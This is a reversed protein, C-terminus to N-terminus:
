FAETMRSGIKSPRLIGVPVSQFFKLNLQQPASLVGCRVTVSCNATEGGHQSRLVRGFGRENEMLLLDVTSNEGLMSFERSDATDLAAWVVAGCNSRPRPNFSATARLMISITPMPGNTTLESTMRAMPPGCASMAQSAPATNAVNSPKTHDSSPAAM